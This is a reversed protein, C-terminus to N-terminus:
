GTTTSAPSSSLGSTPTTTTPPSPPTASRGKTGDPPTVPTTGTSTDPLTKVIVPKAGYAETYILYEMYHPTFIIVEDGAQTLGKLAMAIAGSAGATVSIGSADVHDGFRRNISAAITQRLSM